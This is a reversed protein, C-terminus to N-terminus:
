ARPLREAARLRASRSRPNQRIEEPTPTVIKRTLVKLSAIHECSCVPINPPCICDRSEQTLTGKVIRDELSHYSIVVLRGGPKLLNIAAHLGVQVNDLESNVQIRLAQFTRTAPHTRGRRGGYARTVLNALELTTVVPRHEVIARAISRARPEEGLQSLIKALQDLSYTNVVHDATLEGEPDFRMDLPEETLLSFGRGPTGLQFSSMGLDLLIGDPQHFGLSGALEEMQTYSGQTIAYSSQHHQLRQRAHDVVTPDLDIGLLRSDPASAQLIALAHGGEGVTADVYVGGPRVALHGVAEQVLVSQHLFGAEGCVVGGGLLASSVQIHKELVSIM